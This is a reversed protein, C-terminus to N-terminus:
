AEKVLHKNINEDEVKFNDENDDGKNNRGDNNGEDKYTPLWSINKIDIKERAYSNIANLDHIDAFKLSIMYNVYNWLNHIKERHEDFDKRNKEVTGRNVHCIFCHNKKDNVHKQEENGLEQFSEIIIGFVMDIMIIVVLIFFLDDYFIRGIYRSPHRKFSIRTMLDGMGGRNRLGYDLASMFCFVLSACYNDEYGGMTDNFDDNFFYFGLNSFVFMIIIALLYTLILELYKMKIGLVINKLTPNLNVIALLLFPYAIEGRTLIAGILSVIFLFILTTIYNRVYITDYLAIQIKNMTTLQKKDTIKHTEMYKIKDLRYYLPM